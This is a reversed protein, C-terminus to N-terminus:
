RERITIERGASVLAIRAWSRYVGTSNLAKDYIKNRRKGEVDYYLDILLLYKM